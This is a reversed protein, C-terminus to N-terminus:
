VRLWGECSLVGKVRFEVRTIKFTDLFYVDVAGVGDCDYTLEEEECTV